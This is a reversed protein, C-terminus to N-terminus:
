QSVERTVIALDVFYQGCLFVESSSYYLLILGSVQHIIVMGKKVSLSELVCVYMGM